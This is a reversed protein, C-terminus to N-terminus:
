PKDSRSNRLGPMASEQADVSCATFCRPVEGGALGAWLPAIVKGQVHHVRQLKNSLSQADSQLNLLTQHMERISGVMDEQRQEIHKQRLDVRRLTQGLVTATEYNLRAVESGVHELVEDSVGSGAAHQASLAAARAMIAATNKSQSSMDSVVTDYFSVRDQVYLLSDRIKRTADDLKRVISSKSPNLTELQFPEETAKRDEEKANTLTRTAQKLEINPVTEILFTPTILKTSSLMAKENKEHMALFTNYIDNLRVRKGQKYQVRRRHMERIQKFMSPALSPDSVKKKVKMYNDMIIALLMQLLVVVMLMMTISFWIMAVGRRVQEMSDWNWDGFMMRFSTHVARWFTAFDPLDQGFFFVSAICLCFFVGFYVIFFHLLDQYASIMTDTVVALRAQASFSKFLRMMVVLPYLVLQFRLMREVALANELKAYFDSVLPLYVAQTLEPSNVEAELLVKLAAGIRMSNTMMVGFLSVITLSIIISIWDVMNWLSVYDDWLSNYFHPGDGVRLVRVIDQAETIFMYGVMMLWICDFLVMALIQDWTVAYPDFWLSMMEVRKQALSGRDFWFNVGTHTLLGYEPNFTAMTLRVRKTDERLWPSPPQQQACWECWCERDFDAGEEDDEGAAGGGGTTGGGGGGGKALRRARRRDAGTANTLNSRVRQRAFLKSCGDEMDVVKRLMDNLTMLGTLLWEVREPNSFDEGDESTPTFLLDEGGSSCPKGYWKQWTEESGTEVPFKCNSTKFESVQQEFRIGGIIRNFHLYDGTVPLPKSSPGFAEFQWQESPAASNNDGFLQAEDRAYFESTSWTPQIVLPVFGLRVWSWFDAGTFVNELVKNGMNGEWAFNANNTIDFEIAEEVTYVIHQKLHMLGAGIFSFLLLLTFPLQLCASENDLEKKIWRLYLGQELQIEQEDVSTKYKSTPIRAPRTAWESGNTTTASGRM